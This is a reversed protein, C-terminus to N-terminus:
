GALTSSLSTILIESLISDDEHKVRDELRDLSGGMEGRGAAVLVGEGAGGLGM